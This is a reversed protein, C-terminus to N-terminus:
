PGGGSLFRKWHRCHALRIREFPLHGLDPLAVVTANPASPLRRCQHTDGDKRVGYFFPAEIRGSRLQIACSIRVERELIARRVGPALMLDRYRARHRKQKVKRTMYAM